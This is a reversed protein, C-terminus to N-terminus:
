KGTEVTDKDDRIKKIGDEEGDEWKKRIVSRTRVYKGM